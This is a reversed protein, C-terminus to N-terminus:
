AHIVNGSMGALFHLLPKVKVSSSVWLCEEYRELVKLSCIFHKSGFCSTRGSPFIKLSGIYIGEEKELQSGTLVGLKSPILGLVTKLYSQQKNVIKQLPTSPLM